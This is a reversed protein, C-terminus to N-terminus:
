QESNANIFDEILEILLKKQRPTIKSEVEHPNFKDLFLHSSDYIENEEDERELLYDVSVHYFDALKLLTDLGPHSTGKEYNYYTTRSVNLFSLIEKVSVDRDERLDKLRKLIVM